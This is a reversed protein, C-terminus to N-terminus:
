FISSLPIYIIKLHWMLNGRSNTQLEGGFGVVSPDFNIELAVHHQFVFLTMNRRWLFKKGPEEHVEPHCAVDKGGFCWSAEPWSGAAEWEQGGWKGGDCAGGDGTCM